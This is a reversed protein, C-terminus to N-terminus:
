MKVTNQNKNNEMRVGMLVRYEAKGALVVVKLYVWKKRLLM